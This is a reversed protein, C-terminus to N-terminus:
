LSLLTIYSKQGDFERKYSYKPELKKAGRQIQM